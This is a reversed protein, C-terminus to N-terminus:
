FERAPIGFVRAGDAVHRIVVSGAGVTAQDGVRKTPLVRVGSGLFSGDGVRTSGTLDCHASVTTWAGLKADHGVSTHCNLMTMDGIEIDCTVTVRPCLVVGRGLKVNQGMIVSPHILSVFEAGRELMPECLQRKPGVAGIGCVFVANAFDTFDSISGVVPADMNFGSLAHPNDDLFGRFNYASLIAQEDQLWAYVERGFGGAGVIYLDKPM